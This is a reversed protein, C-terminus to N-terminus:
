LVALIKKLDELIDAIHELGIHLRILNNDSYESKFERDGLHGPLAMSEFGGWSYGINFLKSQNIAKNIKTSTTNKLVVGMLGSAGTYNKKWNKYTKSVSSHPYLVSLVKKHKLLFKSVKLANEHHRQLRISLTRLGRFCLYADEASVHNGLSRATKSIKKRLNKNYAVTGMMFDSHGSLYKTASCISIDFGFPIPKFYLATAWTNDIASTIKHKKAISLVKNLDQFEFSYSGPNEVYILKTNATILKKISDIDNPNYAFSKVGFEKLMKLSSKVPEYSSDSYIIEDGQKCISMLVLVIASLGSSCLQVYDSQELNKLINELEINTRTGHRGYHNNSKNVDDYNKEITHLEEISDFILSSAKVISPNASKYHKDKGLHLLLTEDKSKSM